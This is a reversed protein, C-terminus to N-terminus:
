WMALKKMHSTLMLKVEYSHVINRDTMDFRKQHNGDSVMDHEEAIIIAAM